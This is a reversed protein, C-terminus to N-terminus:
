NMTSAITSVDPYITMHQVVDGDDSEIIITNDSDIITDSSNNNDSNIDSEDSSDNPNYRSYITDLKITSKKTKNYRSNSLYYIVSAAHACTGVTRKGSNCTCITNKTATHNTATKDYTIHTIKKSNSHRSQIRARLLITNDDFIKLNDKYIEISSSNQTKFIEQIYSQAQEIQYPGFTINESIESISLKPFEPISTQNMKIFDKRKIDINYNSLISELQNSDYLKEKMKNSIIADKPSSTYNNFYKNTIAAAIRWDDLAHSLTVNRHIKSNARFSNKLKGNITEM